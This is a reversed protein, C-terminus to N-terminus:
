RFIRKYTAESVPYSKIYKESRKLDDKIEQINGDTFSLLNKLKEAVSHESLGQYVSNKSSEMSDALHLIYLADTGHERLITVTIGLM